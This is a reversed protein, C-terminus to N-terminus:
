QSIIFYYYKELYFFIGVDKQAVPPKEIKQEKM